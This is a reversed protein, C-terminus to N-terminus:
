PGGGAGSGSARGEAQSDADSELALGERVVGLKAATDDVDMMEEASKEAGAADVYPTEVEKEVSLGTEADGSPVPVSPGETTKNTATDTSVSTQKNNDLRPASGGSISSKLNTPESAARSRHHYAIGSQLPDETEAEEIFPQPSVTTFAAADQKLAAEDLSHLPKGTETGKRKQKMSDELSPGSSVQPLLDAPLGQDSNPDPVSHKNEEALWPHELLEKATPRKDPKVILCRNIFDKATESVNTWYRVPEFAYDGMSNDYLEQKTSARNIPIYGSLLYYAIIGLSWIDVSPGHSSRLYVEPAIYGPTGCVEIIAHLKDEEIVRSLGFDAIMVEADDEATNFLLNEPKLDRHVIGCDHIYKVAGCIKKMLIAAGPEHFKGRSCIREVLQGGTCLDFCLYLNNTTEFYDHLTVVNPHGSSIKSLVSIETRVMNERGEMLKKSIVKCAFRKGTTIHVAEKVVAFNGRGLTRGTQYQCTLHKVAGNGM